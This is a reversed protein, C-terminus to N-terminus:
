RGTDVLEAEAQLAAHVLGAVREVLVGAREEVGHDVAPRPEHGLADGDVVDHRGSANARSWSSGIATRAPPCETAPRDSHSSPTTSSM